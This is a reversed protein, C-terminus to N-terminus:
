ALVPPEGAIEAVLAAAKHTAADPGDVLL